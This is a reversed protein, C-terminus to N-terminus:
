KKNKIKGLVRLTRRFAVKPLQFIYRVPYIKNWIVSYLKYRRDKVTGGKGARTFSVLRAIIRECPVYERVFTNDGRIVLVKGGDTVGIVRHMIYKADVKYLVVDYKRPPSDLRELVVVDRKTKLFPRMSEGETVTVANGYKELQSEVGVGDASEFIELM